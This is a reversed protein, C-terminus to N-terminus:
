AWAESLLHVPAEAWLPQAAVEVVEAEVVAAALVVV